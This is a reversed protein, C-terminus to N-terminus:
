NYMPVFQPRSNNNNTHDLLPTEEDYAQQMLHYSSLQTGYYQSTSSKDSRPSYIGEKKEYLNNNNVAGRPTLNESEFM